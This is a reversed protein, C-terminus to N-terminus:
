KKAQYEPGPIIRWKLDRIAEQADSCKKWLDFSSDDDSFEDMMLSELLPYLRDIEERLRKFLNLKKETKEKIM